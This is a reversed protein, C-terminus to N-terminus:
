KLGQLYLLLTSILLMGIGSLRIIKIRALPENDHARLSLKMFALYFIQVIKPFILSVLGLVGFFIIFISANSM